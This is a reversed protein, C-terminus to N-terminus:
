LLRTALYLSCKFNLFSQLSLFPRLLSFTVVNLTVELFHEMASLKWDERHVPMFLSFRHWSSFFRSLGDNILRSCVCNRDILDQAYLLILNICILFAFQLLKIYTQHTPPYLSPPGTSLEVLHWGGLPKRKNSQAASQLIAHPGVSRGRAVSSYVIPWKRRAAKM